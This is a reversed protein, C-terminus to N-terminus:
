KPTVAAGRANIYALAIDTYTSTNDVGALGTPLTPPKAVNYLVHPDPIYTPSAGIHADLWANVADVDSPAAPNLIKQIISVLTEAIVQLAAVNNTFANMLNGAIDLPDTVTKYVATSRAVSAIYNLHATPVDAYFDNPTVMEWWWAPIDTNALGSLLPNASTSVPSFMGAGSTTTGGPFTAGYKRMPNGFTVAAICDQQRYYLDGGPMMMKLVNTAVAAGQSAAVIAFTGPTTRIHSVLENVGVQISDAFSIKTNFWTNDITTPTPPASAPYSIPVWNYKAPNANYGVITDPSAIANPIRTGNAPLTTITTAAPNQWKRIDNYLKLWAAQQTSGVPTNFVGWADQNTGCVTYLTHRNTKDNWRTVQALAAKATGSSSVLGYKTATM